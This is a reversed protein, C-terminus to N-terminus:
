FIPPRCTAGRPPAHISIAPQKRNFYGHRTAGRPPAHISIANTAGEYFPYTVDGRASPRSNFYRRCRRAASQRQTAGRPPAHISIASTSPIAYGNRRGERLPTFQFVIEGDINVIGTTAGRPPAHISIFRRKGDCGHCGTAGRPPAHISIAEMDAAQKKSSDGRASPRSNFYSSSTSRMVRLRTAGRPPAHISIGNRRVRVVQCKGTAGRPPAHISIM